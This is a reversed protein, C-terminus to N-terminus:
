SDCYYQAAEDVTMDDFAWCMALLVKDITKGTLKADRMAKVADGKAAENSWVDVSEELMASYSTDHGVPTLKEEANKAKAMFEKITM